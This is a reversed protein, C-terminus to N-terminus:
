MAERYFQAIHDVVDQQQASGSSVGVGFRCGSYEAIKRELEEVSPGLIFRQAECVSRLAAFVEGEISTYQAKLDLLPVQTIPSEVAPM